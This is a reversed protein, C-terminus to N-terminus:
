HRTLKLYIQLWVWLQIQLKLQDGVGSFTGLLLLLNAYWRMFLM